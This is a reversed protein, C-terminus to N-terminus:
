ALADQTGRQSQYKGDGYPTECEAGQLFLVQAIGCNLYIRVPLNCNNVVEVVLNGKWGPELPTVIVSAAGRAYTSKGLCNGLVNTPIDFWEPTHGLLFGNPPLHVYPAGDDAYKIKPTVYIDPDINRPDVEGCNVDTFLKLGVDSLGIDYGYSSLGFSPVRITEDSTLYRIKKPHFPSIMPTDTQCLDRIQWDALITM